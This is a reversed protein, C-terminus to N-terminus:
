VPMLEFLPLWGHGVGVGVGLLDVLAPLDGGVEVVGQLSHVSGQLSAPGVQEGVIGHATALVLPCGLQRYLADQLALGGVLDSLQNNIPVIGGGVVHGDPFHESINCPACGAGEVAEISFLVVVVVGHGGGGPVGVGEGADGQGLALPARDSSSKQAHSAILPDFAVFGIGIM